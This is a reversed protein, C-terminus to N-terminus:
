GAPSKPSCGTMFNCLVVRLPHSFGPRLQTCLLANSRCFHERLIEVPWMVAIEGDVTNEPDYWCTVKPGGVYYPNCKGMTNADPLKGGGTCTGATCTNSSCESDDDCEAGDDEPVGSPCRNNLFNEVSKEDGDNFFEDEDHADAMIGLAPCTWGRIEENCIWHEQLLEGGNRRRSSLLQRRSAEPPAGVTGLRRRGKQEYEVKYGPGQLFVFAHFHM